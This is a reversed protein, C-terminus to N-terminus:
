LTSTYPMDVRTGIFATKSETLDPTHWIPKVEVAMNALSKGNDIPTIVGNIPHGPASSAIYWADSAAQM